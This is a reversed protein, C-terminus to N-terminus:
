HDSEEPYKPFVSIATHPPRLPNQPEPRLLPAMLGFPGQTLQCLPRETEGSGRQGWPVESPTNVVTALVPMHVWLALCVPFSTCDARGARLFPLARSEPWAAVHGAAARDCTEPAPQWKLPTTETHFGVPSSAESGVIGGCFGYLHTRFLNLGSFCTGGHQLNLLCTFRQSDQTPLCSKRGYRLDGPARPGGDRSTSVLFREEKELWRQDEEMEQQQRILREEMLHPPLM